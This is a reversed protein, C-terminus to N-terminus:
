IRVMEIEVKLSARATTYWYRTCSEYGRKRLDDSCANNSDVHMASSERSEFVGYEEVEVVALEAVALVMVAAESGDEVADENAGGDRGVAIGFSRSNM